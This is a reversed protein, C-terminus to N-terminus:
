KSDIQVYKYSLRLQKERVVFDMHQYQLLHLLVEALLLYLATQAFM